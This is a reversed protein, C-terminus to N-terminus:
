AAAAYQQHRSEQQVVTNDKPTVAEASKRTVKVYPTSDADKKPMGEPGVVTGGRVAAVAEAWERETNTDTESYFREVRARFDDFTGQQEAFDVFVRALTNILETRTDALTKGGVAIAGPNVGDVWVGDIEPTALVRGQFEVEALFGNGLITGRYTFLLPWALSKTDTHNM